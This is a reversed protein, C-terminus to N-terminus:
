KGWMFLIIGSGVVAIIFVFVAIAQLIKYETTQKFKKEAEYRQMLFEEYDLM